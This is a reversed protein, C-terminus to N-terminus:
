IKNISHLFQLLAATSRGERMKGSLCIEIADKISTWNVTIEEGVELNQHGIDTFNTAVLYYLTWDVTPGGSTSTLFIKLDTVDLGSDESVEKKAAAIIEENLNSSNKIQDWEVLTDRVKGGPLRYDYDNIESRFERSLLIQDSQSNFIITRTGPPRIAKEFIRGDPKIDKEVRIIRGDYVIDSM